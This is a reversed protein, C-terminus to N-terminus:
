LWSLERNLLREVSAQEEARLPRLRWLILACAPLALAACLLTLGLGDPM